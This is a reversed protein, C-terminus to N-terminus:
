TQWGGQRWRTRRGWDCWRKGAALGIWGKRCGRGLMRMRHDAGEIGQIDERLVAAVSRNAPQARVVRPDGRGRSHVAKATNAKACGVERTEAEEGGPAEEPMTPLGEMRNNQGSKEGGPQGPFGDDRGYGEGEDDLRLRTAEQALAMLTLKEEGDQWGGYLKLDALISDTSLARGEV